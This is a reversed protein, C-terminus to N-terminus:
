IPQAVILRLGVGQDFHRLAEGIPVSARSIMPRPKNPSALETDADDSSCRFPRAVVDIRKRLASYYATMQEPSPRSLEPLRWWMGFGDVM